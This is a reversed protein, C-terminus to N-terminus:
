KNCQCGERAAFKFEDFSAELANYKVLRGSLVGSLDAIVKIVETAQLAGVVGPLVGLVGPVGSNKPEYSSDPLSTFLCRYCPGKHYNFTSVHGEYEAIGGHVLPIFHKACIRNIIDRTEYNDCADVVVDYDNLLAEANEDSLFVNHETINVNSNLNSIFSQASQTKSMGVRSESHIIQRQLNSTDVVDSDLLGITGVGAAALYMAIPSGLGGVGVILVSANKLKLQGSKGFDPLSLHRAYRLKENESLSIGGAVGLILEISAGAEVRQTEDCLQGDVSILYHDKISNARDFLHEQDIDNDNCLEILIDNVTGVINLQYSDVSIDAIRCLLQPLKINIM